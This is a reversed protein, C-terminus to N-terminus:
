QCWLWRYLMHRLSGLRGSSLRSSTRGIGSLGVFGICLCINGFTGMGFRGMGGLIGLSGWLRGLMGIRVSMGLMRVAMSM